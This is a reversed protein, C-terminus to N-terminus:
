GLGHKGDFGCKYFFAAVLAQSLTETHTRQWGAYRYRFQIQSFWISGRDTGPTGAPCMTLRLGVSVWAGAAVDVPHFAGPQEGIYLLPESEYFPGVFQNDPDSTPVFPAIIRDLHVPIRGTNEVSLRVTVTGDLRYGVLFGREDISNSGDVDTLYPVLPSQTAIFIAYGGALLAIATLVAFFRRRRAAVRQDIATGTM